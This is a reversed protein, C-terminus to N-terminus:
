NFSNINFGGCAISYALKYAAVIQLKDALSQACSKNIQNAVMQGFKGSYTFEFQSNIAIEGDKCVISIGKANNFHNLLNLAEDNILKFDTNTEM